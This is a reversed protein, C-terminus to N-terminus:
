EDFDKAALHPSVSRACRFGLGPRLDNHLLVVRQRSGTQFQVARPNGDIVSVPGGRVVRQLRRLAGPVIALPATANPLITPPSSTWEAVNSFLGFVCGPPTGIVDHLPQGVAGIEWTKEEFTNGFPFETTGGNTAAHEYEFETPLRKGLAEAHALADDYTVFTIAHDEAVQLDRLEHPLSGGHAGQWEDVRIEYPDLYFAAIDRRRGGVDVNRSAPLYAMGDTISRPPVTIRGIEITGDPLTRWRNHRYLGNFGLDSPEFKAEGPIRRYVEKFNFGPIDVAIFYDGATLGVKLPPKGEIRIPKETQIRGSTPHLPWLMAICAGAEIENPDEITLPIPFSTTFTVPISVMVRPPVNEPVVLREYEEDALTSEDVASAHPASLSSAALLALALTALCVASTSAVLAKRRWM